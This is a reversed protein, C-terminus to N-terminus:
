KALDFFPGTGYILGLEDMVLAKVDNTYGGVSWEYYEDDAPQYGYNKWNYITVITGCPFRLRWETTVKEYRSPPDNLCPAGFANVLQNFTASVRGRLCTGDVNTAPSITRAQMQKLTPPEPQKPEEKLSNELEVAEIQAEIANAIKKLDDLNNCNIRILSILHESTM